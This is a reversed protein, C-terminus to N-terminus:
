MKPLLLLCAKGTFKYALSVLEGFWPLATEEVISENITM